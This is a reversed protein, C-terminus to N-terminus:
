NLCYSFKDKFIEINNTREYHHIHLIKMMGLISVPNLNNNKSIRLVDDSKIEILRNQGEM